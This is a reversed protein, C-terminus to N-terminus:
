RAAIDVAQGVYCMHNNINTIKYIGTIVNKGIVRGLLDTLPNKYYMQYIVKNLPLPDRLLSGVEKLKKIEEIDIPSLQLKYFNQQEIVEQHRKDYDVTAQVKSQFDILTNTMNNIEDQYYVIHQRLDTELDKIAILYENLYEQKSNNYFNRLRAEKEKELTQINLEINKQVDDHHKKLEEISSNLAVQEKDLILNKQRVSENFQETQKLKPKIILYTTYSSIIIVLLIILIIYTM